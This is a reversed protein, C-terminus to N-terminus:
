SIQTVEKGKKVNTNEVVFKDEHYRKYLEARTIKNYGQKPRNLFWPTGYIKTM